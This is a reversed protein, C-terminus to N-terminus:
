PSPTRRPSAPGMFVDEVAVASSRSTGVNWAPVIADPGNIIVAAPTRLMERYVAWNFLAIGYMEFGEEFLRRAVYIPENKSAVIETELMVAGLYEFGVAGTVFVAGALVMLKATQLNVKRLQPLFVVAAVVVFLVGFPLWEHSSMISPFWGRDVLFHYVNAFNEHISISEDMSLGLFLLSLLQWCRYDESGAERRSRYLLYLLVAALLLNLTSVYTPISFESGVDFLRGFGLLGKHGSAIALASVISCLALTATVLFLQMVIFSRGPIRIRVDM